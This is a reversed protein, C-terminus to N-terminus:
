PRRLHVLQSSHNRLVDIYLVGHFEALLFFRHSLWKSHLIEYYPATFSDAVIVRDGPLSRQNVVQANIM